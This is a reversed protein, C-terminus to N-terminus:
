NKGERGEKPASKKGQEFSYACAFSILLLAILAYILWFLRLHWFIKGEIGIVRYGFDVNSIGRTHTIHVDGPGVWLSAVSWIEVIYGEGPNLDNLSIDNDFEKTDGKNELRYIGRFPTSLKIDKAEADGSNRIDLKVYSEYGGFSVNSPSSWSSYDGTAKIRPKEDYLALVAAVAIIIGSVIGVVLYVGNVTKM